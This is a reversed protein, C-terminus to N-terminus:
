ARQNFSIWVQGPALPLAFFTSFHSSQAQPASSGSTLILSPGVSRVFGETGLNGISPQQTLCYTEEPDPAKSLGTLLVLPGM